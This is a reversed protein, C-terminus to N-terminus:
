LRSKKIIYSDIEEPYNYEDYIFEYIINDSYEKYTIKYDRLIYDINNINEYNFEIRVKIINKEEEIEVLDLAKSVSNSYARTLGGAGLKIGGFYRVVVVLINNLENKDIVNLIPIGATHAPEGDDEAKKSGNISYAYCIHTADKYEKKLDLLINKIEVINKVKYLYTIFRSKNIIIENSINQTIEKM